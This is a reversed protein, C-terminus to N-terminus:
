EGTPPSDEGRARSQAKLELYKVDILFQFWLGQLFHYIFAEKGDLFGGRLVYRYFFYAFPRLIPPLRNWIRHKIWRKRQPQTGFLSADIESQPRSREGYLELAERAAYDNHKAIWASVGKRDEHVFDNRLYGVKGDVILHENVAKDECRAKGRRFLRLIWTPYYGRRIWKGMWVLRRKVFYGNEKPCALILGSIEWKLADPMWEDADLFFVWETTIPLNELAYNRQHSYGEFPHRAIECPFGVAIELTHDTSGSDLVFVQRAWGAVSALAQGINAEENQTLIVVAVDTGEREARPADGGSSGTARAEPRSGM